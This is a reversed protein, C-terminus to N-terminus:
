FSQSRVKAKKLEEELQKPATEKSFGQSVGNPTIHLVGATIRRSVCGLQELVAAIKRDSIPQRSEVDTLQQKVLAVNVVNESEILKEIQEAIKDELSWGLRAQKSETMIAPDYPSFTKLDVTELYDRVKQYGGYKLWDAFMGIFQKSEAQSVKYEIFQPFFFRRDSSEFYIPDYDNSAVILNLKNDITITPLHKRNVMITENSQYVKLVNTTRRKDVYCEDLLLVTKGILADQFTGVIDSLGCVDASPGMIGRLLTGVLFTKGIGQKSRLVPTSVIKQEPKIVAHAMWWLMYECEAQVPFMREMYDLFPAVEEAQVCQGSYQHKHPTWTNVLSGPLFRPGNPQFGEGYAFDLCGLLYAPDVDSSGGNKKYFDRLIGAYGQDTNTILDRFQASQSKSPVLIFRKKLAEIAQKDTSPAANTM